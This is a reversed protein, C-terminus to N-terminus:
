SGARGAELAQEIRDLGDSIHHAVAHVVDDAKGIALADIIRQHEAIIRRIDFLGLEVNLRSLQPGYHMNGYAAIIHRNGCAEVIAFHFRGNLSVFRALGALSHDGAGDEIQRNIDQLVPILEAGRRPVVLRAATTEFMLRAEMWERVEDQDPKPAVRYGYNERFTVMRDAHLRALAERVPILSVGLKKAVQSIVIQSDPALEGSLIAERVAQYAFASLSRGEPPSSKVGAESLCRPVAFDCSRPMLLSSASSDHTNSDVVFAMMM